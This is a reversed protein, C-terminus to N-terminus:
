QCRISAKRLSTHDMLELLQCPVHFPSKCVTYFIESCTVHNNMAGTSGTNNRPTGVSIFSHMMLYIMIQLANADLMDMFWRCAIFLEEVEYVLSGYWQM